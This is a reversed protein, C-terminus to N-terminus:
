KIEITVNNSHGYNGLTRETDWGTFDGGLRAVERILEQIAYYHRIIVDLPEGNVFVKKADM